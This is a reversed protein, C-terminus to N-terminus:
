EKGDESKNTNDFGGEKITEHIELFVGVFTNAIGTVNILKSKGGLLDYIITSLQM